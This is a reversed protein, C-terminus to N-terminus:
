QMDKRAPMNTVPARLWRLIEMIKPPKGTMLIGVRFVKAAGVMIVFVTVLLLITTLVYDILPPPGASRNLMAFPTYIPIYSMVRAITGNPSHVIPMLTLMPVILIITVPTMLNQAEKLSNCVSGIACFMASFMLYGLVFYILFSPLLVPDTIISAIGMKDMAVGVAPYILPMVKAGTFFFFVWTFVITLGTAALGFIKGTMLQMPSVSSLLVEIIRNSKEEITNTLLMQSMIFVALWLVYVFVVPAFQLAQAKDTVDVEKGEKNVGKSQFHLGANVWAADVAKVNLRKVRAERIVASAEGAFWRRLAKDTYNNSIYRSVDESNPKTGGDGDSAKPKKSPQVGVPDKAIVFVAFLDGKDVRERLEKESANTKVRVFSSPATSAVWQKRDKEDLKALWSKMEDFEPPLTDFWKVVQDKSMGEPLLFSFRDIMDVIQERNARIQPLFRGFMEFGDIVKDLDEPKKKDVEALAQGINGTRIAAPFWSRAKETKAQKYARYLKDIDPLVQRAEIGALVFGSHDIVAYKRIDKTKSLWVSGFILLVYMLPFALIGIWFAKTRLNEVFERRAVLYTKAM